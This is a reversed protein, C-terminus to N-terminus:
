IDRRILRCLGDFFQEFGPPSTDGGFGNGTCALKRGGGELELAWPVGCVIHAGYDGNWSWAEVDNVVSWFLQWDEDKPTFESPPVEKVWSGQPYHIIRGNESVVTFHVWGVSSFFLRDAAQSASINM